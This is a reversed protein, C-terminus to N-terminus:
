SLFGSLWLHRCDKKYTCSVLTSLKIPRELFYSVKLVYSAYSKMNLFFNLFTKAAVLTVLTVPTIVLPKNCSLIGSTPVIRCQSEIM